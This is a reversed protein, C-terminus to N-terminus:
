VHAPRRRRLLCLGGLAMLSVVGPEPILGVHTTGGYAYIGLKAAYNPSMGAADWSLRGAAALGELFAVQDGAMRLGFLFPEVPDEEFHIVMSGNSGLVFDAADSSLLDIGASTNGVHVDIVGRNVTVSDAVTVQTGFLTLEGRAQTNVYDEGLQLSNATVAGVPLYVRGYIRSPRNGDVTGLTGIEVSGASLHALTADRLDLIGTLDVTHPANYRGVTLSSLHGSFTSGAPMVIQSTPVSADFQSHAITMVSPAGATGVSFTGPLLYGAAGANYGFHGQDLSFNGTVTTNLSNSTTGVDLMGSYPGKWNSNAPKWGIYLNGGVDLATLSSPLKLTGHQFNGVGITLDGNTRFQNAVGDTTVSTGSLDLTGYVAGGTHDGEVFHDVRVNQLWGTFSGGSVTLSGSRQEYAWPPQGYYVVEVDRRSGSGTGVQLISGPATANIVATATGNGGAAATTVLNGDVILTNGGLVTTHTNATNVYQLGGVTFSAGENMANSGTGADAFVAIDNAVLGNTDDSWNANTAWNGDAGGNDWTVTAARLGGAVLWVAVSVAVAAMQQVTSKM